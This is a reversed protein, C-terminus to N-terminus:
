LIQTAEKLLDNYEPLTTATTRCVFRNFTEDSVRQNRFRLTLQSTFSQLTLEPQNQIIQSAWSLATSRLALIMIRLTDEESLKSIKAILLADRIWTIIDEKEDGHYEKLIKSATAMDISINSTPNM